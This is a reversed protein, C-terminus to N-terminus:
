QSGLAVSCVVWGTATNRLHVVSYSSQECFPSLEGLGEKRLCLVSTRVFSFSFQSKNYLFLFFLFPLCFFFFLFILFSVVGERDGSLLPSPARSFM